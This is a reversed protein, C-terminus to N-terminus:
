RQESLCFAPPLVDRDCLRAATSAASDCKSSLRRPSNRVVDSVGRYNISRFTFRDFAPFSLLVSDAAVSLALDGVAPSAATSDRNAGNQEVM